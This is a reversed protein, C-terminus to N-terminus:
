FVSILVPTESSLTCHLCAYCNLALTSLSLLKEGWITMPEFMKLIMLYYITNITCFGLLPCCERRLCFYDWHITLFSLCHKSQSSKEEREETSYLHVEPLCFPSLPSLIWIATKGRIELAHVYLRSGFCKFSVRLMFFFISDIRKQVKVATKWLPCCSPQLLSVYGIHALKM